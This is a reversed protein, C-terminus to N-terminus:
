QEPVFGIKDLAAGIEPNAMFLKWILGTRYNEIMVVIPAQNLGMFIPSVWHADFNIADRFGYEGWLRDGLDRYFHKLAALSADPTYPFSALAGTPTLTGTDVHPAPEHAEYGWPGDSATLGWAAPGYGGHRRPNAICYARNIRAIRRNNEFYDTYRDRKGRPDFGLFSYHTFFLPGGTAVGVPLEIGYYTHGNAYHDGHTTQGWGRRYEVARQTQSAWGSYYMEGPVGHTPSAIALLYAIMTENWGILPHELQWAYDPSWHWILFAGDPTKRYWSWEVGEWLATIRDYLAQDAKFYQRAALLGQTLFATEVLDGGDDYRGFLPIVHGTRGSMFHPWAGHFRDATELFGVIQRMRATSQERPIFGRETGVILAMIGFGSAGTAVLDPDGPQSELALGANPHAGDWYYRFSAEQVMTLLQEDTMVHTAAAASESPASVNDNLDVARVRYTARRGPAGLFDVYRHFWSTQVAIAAFRTGDTSREIRYGRLDPAQVPEWALEIHREFGRARLAHPAPPPTSDRPDGSTIAIEDIYLTHPAGDDLWQEFFVTAARHPDFTRGDQLTMALQGIPVTVRTWQGAALGDTYYDAIRVERRLGQADEIGILPLAGAPIAARTYGRFVLSDGTFEAAQNRWSERRVGAHWTGGPQSTWTLRLANPPTFVQATEVPLKGRTAALTSPTIARADSFYYATDTLSREFFIHRDHATQASAPGALLLFAAGHGALRRILPGIATGPRSSWSATRM